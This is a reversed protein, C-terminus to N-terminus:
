SDRGNLKHFNKSIDALQTKISADLRNGNMSLVFGGIIDKDVLHRLEIEAKSDLKRVVNKLRNEIGPGIEEATTLDVAYIHKYEKYEDIYQLAVNNLINERNNDLLLKVFKKYTESANDGASAEMLKRKDTKNGIPNDLTPLLEPLNSFNKRVNMMDKYVSDESGEEIAFLLLAHAYRTSVLGTNM